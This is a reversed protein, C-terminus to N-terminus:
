CLNLRMGLSVKIFPDAVFFEKKIFTLSYPSYMLEKTSKPRYQSFRCEYIDDDHPTVSVAQCM